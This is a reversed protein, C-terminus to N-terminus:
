TFKNKRVQFLRREDDKNPNLTSAASSFVDEDDSSAVANDLDDGSAAVNDLDDTGWLLSPSNDLNPFYELIKEEVVINM